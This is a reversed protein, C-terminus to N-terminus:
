ALVQDIETSFLIRADRVASFADHLTQACAADTAVLKYFTARNFFADDESPRELNYQVGKLALVHKVRAMLKKRESGPLAQIRDLREKEVDVGLVAAMMVGATKSHALHARHNPRLKVSFNFFCDPDDVEEFEIAMSQLLAQAEEKTM